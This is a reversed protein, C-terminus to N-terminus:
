PGEFVSKGDTLPLKWGLPLVDKLSPIALVLEGLSQLMPWHECNDRSYGKFAVSPLRADGCLRVHVPTASSLPSKGRTQPQLLQALIKQHLEASSFGGDNASFHLLSKQLANTFSSRGPGDTSDNFGCAAILETVGAGSSSGPPSSHNFAGVADCCDLIILIRSQGHELAAQLDSWNLRPSAVGHRSKHAAWTLKSQSDLGGHGAYYVILPINNQISKHLWSNLFRELCMSSNISPIAYCEVSFQFEYKFTNALGRLEYIVDLDDDEWSILLAAHEVAPVCQSNRNATFIQPLSFIGGSTQLMRMIRAADM